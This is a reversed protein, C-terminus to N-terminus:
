KMINKKFLKNEWKGHKNTENKNNKQKNLTKSETYYYNKLSEKKYM